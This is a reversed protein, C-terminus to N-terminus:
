GSAQLDRLQELITQFDAAINRLDKVITVGDGHARYIKTTNRSLVLGVRYSNCSM